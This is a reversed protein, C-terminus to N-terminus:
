AADQASRAELLSANGHVGRGPDLPVVHDAPEDAVIVGDVRGITAGPELPQVAMVRRTLVDLTVVRSGLVVLASSMGEGEAKEAARAISRLEADSFAGEVDPDIEIERMSGTQAAHLAEEFSSPAPAGVGASSQLKSIAAQGQSHLRGLLRSAESGVPGSM